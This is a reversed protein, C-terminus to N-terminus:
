APQNYRLHFYRLQLPVPIVLSDATVLEEYLGDLMSALVPTLALGNGHKFKLIIAPSNDNYRCWARTRVITPPMLWCQGCKGKPLDHKLPRGCQGCKPGSTPELRSWCSACLSTSDAFSRRSVCQHPLIFTSLHDILHRM